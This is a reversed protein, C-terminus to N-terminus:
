ASDTGVFRILARVVSATSSDSGTVWIEDGALINLHLIYDAPLCFGNNNSVGNTPGLWAPLSEAWGGSEANGSDAPQVQIWAEVDAGGAEFLMNDDADTVTQTAIRFGMPTIGKILPHHRIRGPRAGSRNLTASGGELCLQGTTGVRRSGSYTLLYAAHGFWYGQRHAWM